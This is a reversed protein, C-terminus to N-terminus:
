CFLNNYFISYINFCLNGKEYYGVKFINKNYIYIYDKNSQTYSTKDFELILTDSTTSEYEWYTTNSSLNNDYKNPWNPSTITTEINMLTEEVTM